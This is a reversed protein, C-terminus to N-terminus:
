RELGRSRKAAREIEVVRDVPKVDVRDLIHEVSTKVIEIQRVDEKLSYYQNYLQTIETTFQASEKKWAPINFQRKGDNGVPLHQKLYREAAQFLTLEARNAQFFADQKKPKMTKYKRNIERHELFLGAQKIHETLLKNRQEANKLKGNVDKFRSRCSTVNERLQPLTSIKHTQLFSVASAVSQLSVIKQWRNKAEQNGIMSSLVEILNLTKVPTPAPAPAPTVPENAKLNESLVHEAQNEQSDVITSSVNKEALMEDIGIELKRIRARIQRMEKNINIVERNHNGKDTAIGRKEMQSAAVGMHITPLKDVGQRKFSRNDVREAFGNQELHQNLMDAWAKRWEEAKHRENWDVTPIKEGNINRSKQGWNGDAEIPRMTLMLHFHPNGDEKDHVCLDACMGKDVFHRQVYKRALSINQERSLEVPLSIELERALQATKYRESQEVANWLIARNSYEAPAHDPLLIEKHIVGTKYTYDSTIGNYENKIIEAARYAAKAVSSAGKGRSFVKISCHYIAIPKVERKNSYFLPL